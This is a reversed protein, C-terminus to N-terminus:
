FLIHQTKEASCYPNMSIIKCFFFIICITCTSVMIINAFKIYMNPQVKYTRGLINYMKGGGGGGGGGGVITKAEIFVSLISHTVKNDIVM